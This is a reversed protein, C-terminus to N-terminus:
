PQNLILKSSICEKVFLNVDNKATKNDIEYEDILFEELDMTTTITEFSDWLASASENLEIYVGTENNLIFTNGSLKESIINKNKIIKM